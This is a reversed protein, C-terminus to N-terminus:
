ICCWLHPSAAVLRQRRWQAQTSLGAGARNVGEPGQHSFQAESSDLLASFRAPPERLRHTQQEALRARQRWQGAVTATCSPSPLTSAITRGIRSHCNDFASLWQTAAAYWM